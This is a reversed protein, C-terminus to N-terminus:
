LGESEVLPLPILVLPGALYSTPFFQATVSAALVTPNGTAADCVVNFNQGNGVLVGGTNDAAAVPLTRHASTTMFYNGVNASDLDNLRFYPQSNDYTTGKTIQCRGVDTGTDHNWTVDAHVTVWGDSPVRMRVAGITVDTATLTIVPDHTTNSFAVGAENTIDASTHTHNGYYGVVDIIVDVSGQLNYVSFKGASDLQTTVANPTPPQGPTPNLSSSNPPTGTGPFFTLYTEQSAGVATVNLQLGTSNTPLAPATCQGQAGWGDIPIQSNASLTSHPGVHFAPINRTDVIRCPTIAVYTSAGEPSTAKVMGFGGAGLSVAVAAGIAAWRARHTSRTTSPSNDNTDTNM